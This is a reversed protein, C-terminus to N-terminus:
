GGTGSVSREASGAGLGGMFPFQTSNGMATWPTVREGDLDCYAEKFDSYYRCSSFTIYRTKGSSSVLVAVSIDKSDPDPISPHIFGSLRWTQSYIIKPKPPQSIKPPESNSHVTKVSDKINVSSGGVAFFSTAKYIGFPIAFIAFILVFWLTYSRLFSGSKDAVSEDGVDGTASKTASKYYSYVEKKYRGAAQRILRSKPPSDGTVVGSYSNVRYFKKNYKKVVFTTEILTRASSALQSLDQTVLVIRMSNGKGDVMHRHEALLSKDSPNAKSVTQGAPWRRWLEDLVLVCGNKTFESLDPREWWDDPLIEITGGFDSLLADINLPINTVIHRGQKLSPIVVREVAGYTKGSGPKGVYAHVAM